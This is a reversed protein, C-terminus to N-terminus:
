THKLRLALTGGRPLTYRRNGSPAPMAADPLGVAENQALVLEGQGGPPLQLVLDRGGADRRSSLGVPGQVTFATLELDELDGLQPRLEFRKFGPELPRLGMLGQYAIYLPVVGCHSWQQATDPEAHWGEQLTNNEKVSAM